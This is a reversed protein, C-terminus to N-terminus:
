LTHKDDDSEISDYQCSQALHLHRCRIRRRMGPKSQRRRDSDVNWYTGNEEEKEDKSRRAVHEDELCVLAFAVLEEHGAQHKSETHSSIDGADHADDPSAIRVIDLDGDCRLDKSVRSDQDQEEDVEYERLSNYSSCM